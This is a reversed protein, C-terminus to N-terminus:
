DESNVSKQRGSMRWDHGALQTHLVMAGHIV